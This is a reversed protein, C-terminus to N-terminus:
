GATRWARADLVDRVKRGLEEPTFPKRLFAAELGARGHYAVTNQTYGSVYLVELRPRDVLLRDALEPGTMGTLVVDAILLDVPEAFYDDAIALAEEGTSARQVSYGLRELSKVMVSLVAQDDEVILISEAGGRPERASTPVNIGDDIDVAPLDVAIALGRGGDAAEDRARSLTSMTGGLREVIAHAAALDIGSPGAAPVYPEFLSRGAAEDLEDGTDAYTLRVWTAHDRDGTRHGAVGSSTEDNVLPAGIRETVLSLLGGDPMRWRALRALIALVEELQGRDTLVRPLRAPSPRREVGIEPGVIDRLRPLASVVLANLDVLAPEMPRQRAVAELRRTLRLAGEASQRIALADAHSADGPDLDMLLLDAYSTIATVLNNFEGALGAALREVAALRERLRLEEQIRLQETIDRYITSTGIVRGSTDQIPSITLGVDVRRGDRTIRVTHAQEVTSGAAARSFLRAADSRDESPILRETSSGVMEAARYGFLREASENWTLITGDLGRGVIADGASTVIAAM